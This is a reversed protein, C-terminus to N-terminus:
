FAPTNPSYAVPFASAHGGKPCQETGRRKEVALANTLCILIQAEVKRADLHVKLGENQSRYQWEDIIEGVAM